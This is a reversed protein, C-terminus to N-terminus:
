GILIWKIGSLNDILGHSLSNYHLSLSPIETGLTRAILLVLEVDISASEHLLLLIYCRLLPSLRVTRDGRSRGIDFSIRVGWSSYNSPSHYYGPYPPIM